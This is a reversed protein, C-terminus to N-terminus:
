KWWLNTRWKSSEKTHWSFNLLPVKTTRGGNGYYNSPVNKNKVPQLKQITESVSNEGSSQSKEEMRKQQSEAYQYILQELAEM